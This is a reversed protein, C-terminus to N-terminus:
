DNDSPGRVDGLGHNSRAEHAAHTALVGLTIVGGIKGIHVYLAKIAADLVRKARVDVAQRGSEPFRV